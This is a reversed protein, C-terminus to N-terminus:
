SKLNIDCTAVGWVTRVTMVFFKPVELVSSSKFVPLWHKPGVGRGITALDIHDLVDPYKAAFRKVLIV